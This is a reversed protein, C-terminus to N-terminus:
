AQRLAISFHMPISAGSAGSPTLSIVDDENVYSLANTTTQGSFLQGAASGAQTVTFTGVTTGNVAVTITADATTIAGGLIGTFKLIRARLPARLYAAVPTTGVSPTSVTLDTTNLTHPTPLAM